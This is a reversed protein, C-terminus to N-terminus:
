FSRTMAASSRVAEKGATTAAATPAPQSGTKSRISGCAMRQSARRKSHVRAAWLGLAGALRFVMSGLPAGDTRGDIMKVRGLHLPQQTRGSIHAADDVRAAAVQMRQVVREAKRFGCFPRTRPQVAVATDGAGPGVAIQDSDDRPLSPHAMVASFVPSGFVQALKELDPLSKM